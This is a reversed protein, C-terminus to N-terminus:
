RKTNCGINLIKFAAKEGVGNNKTALSDVAILVAVLSQLSTADAAPGTVTVGQSNCLVVDADKATVM